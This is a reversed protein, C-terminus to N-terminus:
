RDSRAVRAGTRYVAFNPPEHRAASFKPGEDTSM